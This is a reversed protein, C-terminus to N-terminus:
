QNVPRFRFDCRSGGGAITQTRTLQAGWDSAMAHDLNCAAYPTLEPTGHTRMFTALPCATVDFDVGSESPLVQRRFPKTYLVRFLLDQLWKVRTNLQAGRLRSLAFVVRVSPRFATWTVREIVAGAEAEDVGEVRLARYLANDWEMYRLLLDTGLSQPRRQRALDRQHRVTERWLRDVTDPPWDAALVARAVRRFTRQPLVLRAAQFM